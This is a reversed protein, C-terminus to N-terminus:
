RGDELASNIFRAGVIVQLKVNKIWSPCRNFIEFDIEKISKRKWERILNTRINPITSGITNFKNNVKPLLITYRQNFM